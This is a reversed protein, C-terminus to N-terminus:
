SEPSIDHISLIVSNHGHSPHGPVVQPVQDNTFTYPTAVTGEAQNALDLHQQGIVDTMKLVSTVSAPATWIELLHEEHNLTSRGNADRGRCYARCRYSGPGLASLASFETYTGELTRICPSGSAVDFSSEVVAEWTELDASSSAHELVDISLAIYGTHTGTLFELGEPIPHILGNPWVKPYIPWDQGDVLAYQAYTVFIDQTQM